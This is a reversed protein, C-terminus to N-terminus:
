RPSGGWSVKLTAAMQDSAQKLDANLREDPNLPGRMEQVLRVMNGGEGAPGIAALRIVDRVAGPITATYPGHELLGRLPHISRKAPDLPHFSLKPEALVTFDPLQIAATM